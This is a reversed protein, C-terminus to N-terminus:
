NQQQKRIEKDVSQKEAAPLPYHCNACRDGNGVNVEGCNRCSRHLKKVKKNAPQNQNGYPILQGKMRCHVCTDVSDENEHHCNKCLQM